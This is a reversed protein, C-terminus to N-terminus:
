STLVCTPQQKECTDTQRRGEVALSLLDLQHSGIEGVRSSWKDGSQSFDPAWGVEQAHIGAALTFEDIDAENLLLAVKVAFITELM